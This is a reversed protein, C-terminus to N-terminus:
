IVCKGGTGVIDGLSHACLYKFVANPSIWRHTVPYIDLGVADGQGQRILPTELFSDRTVLRLEQDLLETQSRLLCWSKLPHVKRITLSSDKDSEETM